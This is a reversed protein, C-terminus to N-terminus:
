DWELKERKFKKRTQRRAMVKLKAVHKSYFRYGIDYATHFTNTKNWLSRM